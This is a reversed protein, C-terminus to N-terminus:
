LDLTPPPPPCLFDEGQNKGGAKPPFTNTLENTEMSVRFVRIETDRGRIPFNIYFLIKLSM